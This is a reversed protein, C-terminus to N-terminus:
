TTRVMQIFGNDGTELTYRGGRSRWKAHARVRGVSISKLRLREAVVNAKETIEEISGGEELLETLYGALSERHPQEPGPEGPEVFVVDDLHWTFKDSYSVVERSVAGLLEAEKILREGREKAYKGHRELANTFSQPNKLGNRLTEETQAVQSGFYWSGANLRLACCRAEDALCVLQRGAEDNTLNRGTLVQATRTLWVDIPQLLRRDRLGVDTVGNELATDRLFLSAIKPGIGRIQRLADHAARVNNAELNRISFLYLNPDDPAVRAKCFTVADYGHMGNPSLPNRDPNPPTRGLLRLFEGWVNQSANETSLADKCNELARVAAEKYSQPAGAREFAYARLFLKLAEIWDQKYSPFQARYPKIHIPIFISGGLRALLRATECAAASMSCKAM